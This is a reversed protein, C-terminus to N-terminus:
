GSTVICIEADQGEATVRITKAAAAALMSDGCVLRQRSEQYELLANGKVIIVIQIMGGELTIATRSKLQLRKVQFCSTIKKDILQELRFGTGQRLLKPIVQSQKSIEEVTYSHYDFIDLCFELGKGMFRAEPPVVVGEREFECRVVWDSPEMIELMLIGEGIAHPMGGPIFWVQGEEVPIPEFCADMAAMDQTEIIRRWEERDPAHQFGLRIYPRIGERVKLIYYCELKGYPSDLYKRSFDATPHAQVHLRISSDLLKFLFGMDMGKSEWHSKGFYFEPHEELIERLLRRKGQVMCFAYGEDAIADMGPNKAEVLSAIWEEPRNGDECVHKGHLRDIGAGGMYNRRVRNPPLKLLYELGM